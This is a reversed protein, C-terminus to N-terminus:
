KVPLLREALTAWYSAGIPLIEDNFDYAPHHVMADGPARGAGLMIYSGKKANLMFSFDEGGMTPNPMPRVRADGAVMTAVERTMDTADPDNVTAPYSRQFMVEATAGFSEAIGTALRRVGNELQDGVKPEFWRATGKMHVTEPIVNYTHGGNIHGITVVGSELPDVTRAVISQLATVIQSAILIPDTGFHPQAGHTGKGTITIEINAVAAMIPGHRWAFTGAPLQPWNHMGFVMEMPFRDFLGEKVMIEGGALNEEAPQFIVYVTGDFNRTEALYKAAGLLMTTHGDHGCAHMVGENRSAYPVGTEEVIPLADMDARLGIARDSAGRGRIVGVVGTRALGTIVEDVGFAALREQVVRSTRTEQLALEPHAHLDHRWETMEAHFAAIRNIIPM